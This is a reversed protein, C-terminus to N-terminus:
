PKGMSGHLHPKSPECSRQRSCVENAECPPNCQPVCTGAQCAFGPSCIPSCDGGAASPAPAAGPAVMLSRAFTASIVYSGNVSGEAIGYITDAGALCAQRRMDEYCAEESSMHDPCTTRARAVDRSPFPMPGFLIQVPCDFGRATLFTGVRVVETNISPFDCGGMLVVGAALAMGLRTM